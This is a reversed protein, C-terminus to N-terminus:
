PSGPPFRQILGSLSKSDGFFFRQDHQKPKSSKTATHCLRYVTSILEPDFPRGFEEAEKIRYEFKRRALDTFSDIIVQSLGSDTFGPHVKNQAANQFLNNIQPPNTGFSRSLMELGSPAEFFTYAVSIKWLKFDHTVTSFCEPLKIRTENKLRSTAYIFITPSSISLQGLSIRPGRRQPALDHRQGQLNCLGFAGIPFHLRNAYASHVAVYTLSKQSFHETFQTWKFTSTNLSRRINPHLSVRLEKVNIDGFNSDEYNRVVPLVITLNGDNVRERVSFIQRVKGYDDITFRVKPKNRSLLKM